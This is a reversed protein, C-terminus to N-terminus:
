ADIGRLDVPAEHGQDEGGDAEIEPQARGSRFFDDHDLLNAHPLVPREDQVPRGQALDAQRRALVLDEAQDSGPQAVALDALLQEHRLVRDLGVRRAQELLHADAAPRLRDLSALLEAEDRSAFVFSHIAGYRGLIVRFYSAGPPGARTRQARVPPHSMLMFFITKRKPSPEPAKSDAIVATVSGSHMFPPM